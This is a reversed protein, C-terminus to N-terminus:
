RRGRKKNFKDKQKNAVKVAAPEKPSEIEEEKAEKIEVPVIESASIHGSLLINQYIAHDIEVPINRKFVFRKGNYETIILGDHSINCVFM